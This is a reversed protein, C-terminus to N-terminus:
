VNNIYLSFHCLCLDDLVNCLLGADWALINGSTYFSEHFFDADTQCLVLLIDIQTSESCEGNLVAGGLSGTINGLVRCQNNLGM